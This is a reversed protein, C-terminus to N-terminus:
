MPTKSNNYGAYRTCEPDKMYREWIVADDITVFRTLLRSSELHDQYTPM